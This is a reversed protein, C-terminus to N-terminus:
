RKKEWTEAVGENALGKHLRKWVGIADDLVQQSMPCHRADCLGIALRMVAGVARGSGPFEALKGLDIDPEDLSRPGASARM